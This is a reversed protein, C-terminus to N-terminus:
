FTTAFQLCAPQRSHELPDQTSPKQQSAGHLPSHWAHAATSLCDPSALPVQPGILSPMSGRLSHLGDPTRQPASPMHLPVPAHRKVVGAPTEQPAPTHGPWPVTAFPSSQSPAPTQAVLAAPTSHAGKRQLSPPHVVVQTVVASQAPLPQHLTPLHSGRRAFPLVHVALSCHAFLTHTSPTHQLAGQPPCHSAHSTSPASPVHAGTFAAGRLPRGDQAAPVASFGQEAASQSPASRVKQAPKTPDATAHPTDLQAVSVAVEAPVHSPLLV